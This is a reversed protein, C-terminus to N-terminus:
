RRSPDYPSGDPNRRQFPAALISDALLAYRHPRRYAGGWIERSRYKRIMPLDFHALYVGEAAGAQVVLNDQSGHEGFCVPHFAVSHGNEQPAAYNTLAVGVMNEYARTQLQGTRHQEMECANPVLIIEAGKLMLLRASEPFERDFCIMAGVKVTGSVTDLDCVYFDEGPTLAAEVDFDCTHLKAYTLMIEGHRDILALTNRPGAEGRQLFTLAIAMNLEAALARFHQVFPSDLDVAQSQWDALSAPSGLQYFTYGINWMEPFLAADAGLACAQRCFATGKALNAAQDFGHATMQLLAVTFM